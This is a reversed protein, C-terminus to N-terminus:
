HKGWTKKVEPSSAISSVKFYRLSLPSYHSSV